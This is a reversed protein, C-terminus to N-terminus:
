LDPQTFLISAQAYGLLLDRQYEMLISDCVNQLLRKLSFPDLDGIDKKYEEVVKGNEGDKISILIFAQKLRINNQYIKM